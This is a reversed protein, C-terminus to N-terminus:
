VGAASSAFKTLARSIKTLVQDCGTIQHRKKLYEPDNYGIMVSGDSTEWILMKQPLDIATTPSCKMLPTGLKPNGFILVVTPALQMDVSHANERHDIRQFITLGNKELINELRDATQEATYGSQLTVIGNQGFATSVSITSIILIASLIIKHM